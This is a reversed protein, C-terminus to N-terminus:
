ISNTLGLAVEFSHVIGDAVVEAKVNVPEDSNVIQRNDISVAFGSIEDNIVMQELGANALGTWRSVTTSKIYGTAPDKKVIGKVEPILVARIIRAAKNWVRNNEIYAFDSEKAVATHSATFFVGAYSQYSAAVIYGKEDLDVYEAAALSSVTTGDTLYAQLWLDRNAETLPYDRTGRADIPKNQINVSALNENVKRVAIMGLLAGLNALSDNTGSAICVSMNPCELARLDVADAITFGNIGLIGFDIFQNEGALVDVVNTQHDQLYSEQTTSTGDIVTAKDEQVAYGKVEPNAKLFDVIATATSDNFLYLTGEPALRFFDSIQRHLNISENADLSAVIGISEAAFLSDLKLGNGSNGIADNVDTDTVPEVILALHGDTSVATRGLGGQLKELQVGQLEAM